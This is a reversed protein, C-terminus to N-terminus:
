ASFNRPVLFFYGYRSKRVEIGKQKGLPTLYVGKNRQELFGADIFARELVKTKLGESKALESMSVKEYNNKSGAYEAPQEAVQNTAVIETVGFKSRYDFEIPKHMRSLKKAYAEAEDISYVSRTLMKGVVKAVKFFNESDIASNLAEEVRDPRCIMEFGKEPKILKSKYDVIVLHGIIEPKYGIKELAKKLVREHRESQKIPSPIEDYSKSYSNWRWFVGQEDVKIGTSFSKTEYLFVIGNSNLSVHDIQAVDGDIELRLGNLLFSRKWGKFLEGLMYSANKEANDGSRVKNLEFKIRKNLNKNSSTAQILEELLAVDAERAEFEKIVPM